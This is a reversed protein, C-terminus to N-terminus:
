FFHCKELTFNYVKGNRLVSINIQDESKEAIGDKWIECRESESISSLDRENISLITDGIELHKSASSGEILYSIVIQENTQTTGYGFTSYSDELVAQNEFIKIRKKNWNLIVRYNKFFGLGIRHITTKDAYVIEDNVIFDGFRIKDIKATYFDNNSAEGFAGIPIAGFGKVFKNIRGDEIQKNLESYPIVIGGDYGFDIPNNYIKTGNIFSTVSAIGGYGVYLKSETYSSKIDLKIERDTIRIEKNKFDFDWIAHQMLNSGIIGDIKLCNYPFIETFFDSIGTTTDLFHIGGLSISEIKAYSMDQIAGQIDSVKETGLINLNLKEALEKSIINTAGTDMIFNYVKGDITPQVVIWGTSLNLPITTLYDTELTKGEKFYQSLKSGGCSSLSLLILFYLLIKHIM